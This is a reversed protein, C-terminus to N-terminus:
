RPFIKSTDVDFSSKIVLAATAFITLQSLVFAFKRYEDLARLELITTLFRMFGYFVIFCTLALTENEGQGSANSFNQIVLASTFVVVHIPVHYVVGAATRQRRGINNPRTMKPLIREDEALFEDPDIAYVTTAFHKLFLLLEILAFAGFMSNWTTPTPAPMRRFSHHSSVASTMMSLKQEAAAAV